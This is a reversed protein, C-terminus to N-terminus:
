VGAREKQRGRWGVCVGVGAARVGAGRSGGEEQKEVGVVGVQEFVGLLCVQECVGLVCGQEFVDLVCVCVQEGEAQGRDVGVGVWRSLCPGCARCM